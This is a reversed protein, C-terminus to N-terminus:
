DKKLQLLKKLFLTLLILTLSYYIVLVYYSYYLYVIRNIHTLIIHNLYLYKDLIIPAFTLSNTQKVTQSLLYTINTFFNNFAIGRFDGVSWFIYNLTIQSQKFYLYLKPTTQISKLFILDSYNLYYTTLLLFLFVSLHLIKFFYTKKFFFKIYIIYFSFNLCILLLFTKSIKLFILLLINLNLISKLFVLSGVQVAKNMIFFLVLLILSYIYVYLIWNLLFVRLKTLNLKKAFGQLVRYFFEFLYAILFSALVKYLFYDYQLFCLDSLFSHISPILNYRSIIYLTYISFILLSKSFIWVLKNEIKHFHLFVIYFVLIFLNVIEIFDWVWWGGWNLEQQAWWGGTFIVLNIFLLTIIQFFKNFKQDWKFFNFGRVRLARNEGLKKFDKLFYKKFFFVFVIIIFIPHILFLGNLLNINLPTYINSYNWFFVIFQPDLCLIFFLPLVTQLKSFFNFNVLLLIIITIQFNTDINSLTSLINYTFFPFGKFNALNKTFVSDFEKCFNLILFFSIIPFFKKLFYSLPQLLLMFYLFIPYL